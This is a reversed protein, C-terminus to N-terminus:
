PGCTTKCDYIHPKYKCAKISSVQVTLVLAVALLIALGMELNLFKSAENEFFIGSFRMKHKSMFWAAAIVNEVSKVTLFFFFQQTDTM